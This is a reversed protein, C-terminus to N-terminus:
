PEMLIISRGTALVTEREWTGPLGAPQSPFPLQKTENQKM